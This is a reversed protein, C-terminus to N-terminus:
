ALEDFGYESLEPPKETWSGFAFQSIGMPHAQAIKWIWGNEYARSSIVYDQLAKGSADAAFFKTTKGKLWKNETHGMWMGFLWMMMTMRAAWAEFSATPSGEHVLLEGPLKTEATPLKTKLWTEFKTFEGSDSMEKLVNFYLDCLHIGDQPVAPKIFEKKVHVLQSSFWVFSDPASTLTQVAGSPIKQSEPQPNM